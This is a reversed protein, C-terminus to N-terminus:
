AGVEDDRRGMADVLAQYAALDVVVDDGSATGLLRAAEARAAPSPPRNAKRRCPPATSFANLVEAQLANHHEPARLV